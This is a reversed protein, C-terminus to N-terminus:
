PKRFAITITDRKAFPRLGRGEGSHAAQSLIKWGRSLMKRRLQGNKRRQLIKASPLNRVLKARVQLIQGADSDPESYSARFGVERKLRRLFQSPQVM